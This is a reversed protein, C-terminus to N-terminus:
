ISWVFVSDVATLEEQYFALYIVVVKGKTTTLNKAIWSSDSSHLVESQYMHVM